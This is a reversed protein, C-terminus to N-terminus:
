TRRGDSTDEKPPWVADEDKEEWRSGLNEIPILVGWGFEPQPDVAHFERAEVEDVVSIAEKIDEYEEIDPAAEFKPWCVYGSPLPKNFDLVRIAANRLEDAIMRRIKHEKM